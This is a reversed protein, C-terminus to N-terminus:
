DNTAVELGKVHGYSHRISLALGADMVKMSSLKLFRSAKTPMDFIVIFLENFDSEVLVGTSYFSAKHIFCVPKGVVTVEVM